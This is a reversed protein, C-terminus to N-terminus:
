LSSQDALPRDEREKRNQLGVRITALLVGGLTVIGGVISLPTPVEGLWIWAIGFALAPTLYLSSTAESSGVRSTVYALALYAIVTPFIGLYLVSLTVETPAQIIAEGLGPLSYLMFLTGGWITYATFALFGYKEVYNRQFAFYLSESFSALLILFIGGNWQFPEGTGLSSIAVGIFGLLSGLWGRLGFRERFFLLALISAFLPTTSVFLSAVGASITQEGYNLAVHYVTFGLGGLLLLAPIDKPEPMRIRFFIAFIVLLVSGILFRLLSLQDPSYAELGVRIGPFASAWIVISLFQAMVVGLQSQKKM